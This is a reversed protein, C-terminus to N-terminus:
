TRWPAGPPWTTRRWRRSGPGPMRAHPVDLSKVEAELAEVRELHRERAARAADLEHRLKFPSAAPAAVGAQVPGYPLKVLRPSVLALDRTPRAGPGAPGRRRVPLGAGAPGGPAPAPRAELPHPPALPECGPHRDRRRPRAGGPGGASIWLQGPAEGPPAPRGAEGLAVTQAWAGLLRELSPLDADDM